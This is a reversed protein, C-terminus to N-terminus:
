LSRPDNTSNNVRLRLIVLPLLLFGYISNHMFSKVNVAVCSFVNDKESEAWNVNSTCSMGGKTMTKKHKEIFDYIPLACTQVGTM